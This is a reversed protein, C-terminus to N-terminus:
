QEKEKEKQGREMYRRLVRLEVLVEELLSHVTLDATLQGMGEVEHMEISKVSGDVTTGTATGVDAKLVVDDSVRVLAVDEVDATELRPPRKFRDDPWPM